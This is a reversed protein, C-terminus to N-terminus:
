FQGSSIWGLMRIEANGDVQWRSDVCQGHCETGVLGSCGDGGHTAQGAM